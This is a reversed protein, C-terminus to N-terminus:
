TKALCAEAAEAALARAMAEYLTIPGKVPEQDQAVAKLNKSAFDNIDEATFPEPVVTCGAMLVVFAVCCLVRRWWGRVSATLLDDAIIEPRM